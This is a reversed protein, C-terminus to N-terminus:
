RCAARAAADDVDVNARERWDADAFPDTRLGLDLAPLIWVEALGERDPYSPILKELGRRVVEALSMEYQRAIRRAEHYLEDPM